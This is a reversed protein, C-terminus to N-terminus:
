TAFHSIIPKEWHYVILNGKPSDNRQSIYSVIKAQSFVRINQIMFFYYHESSIPKDM